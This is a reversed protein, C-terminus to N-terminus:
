KVNFHVCLCVFGLRPCLSTAYSAEPAVAQVSNGLSVCAGGGSRSIQLTLPKPRGHPLLCPLRLQEYGLLWPAHLRGANEEAEGKKGEGPDRGAPQYRQMWSPDKWKSM